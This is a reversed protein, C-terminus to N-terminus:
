DDKAPTKTEFHKIVNKISESYKTGFKRNIEGVADLYARARIYAKEKENKDVLSELRKSANYAWDQLILVLNDLCTDVEDKNYYIKQKINEMRGEILEVQKLKNM